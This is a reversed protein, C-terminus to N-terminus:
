FMMVFMHVM